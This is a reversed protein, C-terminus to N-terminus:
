LYTYLELEWHLPMEVFYIVPLYIEIIIKEDIFDNVKEGM